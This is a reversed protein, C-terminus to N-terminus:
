TTRRVWLAKQRQSGNQLNQHSAIGKQYEKDQRKGGEGLFSGVREVLEGGRLVPREVLGETVVVADLLVGLEEISAQVLRGLRRYQSPPRALREAPLGPDMEDLGLRAILGDHIHGVAGDELKGLDGATLVHPPGHVPTANRLDLLLLLASRRAAVPGVFM